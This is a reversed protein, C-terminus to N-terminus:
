FRMNTSESYIQTHKVHPYRDLKFYMKILQVILQWREEYSSSTQKIQEIIFKRVELPHCVIGACLHNNKGDVIVHASFPAKATALM